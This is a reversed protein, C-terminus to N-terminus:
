TRFPGGPAFLTRAHVVAIVAGGPLAIAWAAATPDTQVLLAGAAVGAGSVALAAYWAGPARGSRVGALGAVQVAGFMALATVGWGVVGADQRV